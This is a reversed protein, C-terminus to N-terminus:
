QLDNFLSFVMVYALQFGPGPKPYACFHPLTLSILSIEARDGKILSDGISICIYDFLLFVKM